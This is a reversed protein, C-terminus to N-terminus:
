VGFFKKFTEAGYQGEIMGVVERITYTEKVEPLSKIFNNTGAECAGTIIRYMTKMEELPIPNDISLGKYQKEGRDKAKKFAIDKIGESLKGCHAFYTGDSVVNHKTIKGIYFDYDGKKFHKRVHTLIGDAYIYKEPVYDGDALRRYKTPNSITTGNLYLSDGVTLGKPLETLSTCGRLYLTGGVTLGEPLETLSTCGGLYLSGGNREMMENLQELTYKM